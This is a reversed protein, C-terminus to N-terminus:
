MCWLKTLDSQKQNKDEKPRQVRERRPKPKQSAEAPKITTPNAAQHDLIKYVIGITKWTMWMTWITVLEM